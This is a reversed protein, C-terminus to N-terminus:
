SLIIPLLFIQEGNFLINVVYCYSVLYKSRLIDFRGPTFIDFQFQSIKWGTKRTFKWKKAKINGQYTKCNKEKFSDSVFPAIFQKKKQTQNLLTNFTCLFEVYYLKYKLEKMIKKVQM